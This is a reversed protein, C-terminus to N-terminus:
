QKASRQMFGDLEPENFLGVIALLISREYNGNFIRPGYVLLGGVHIHARSVVGAGQFESNVLYAKVLRVLQDANMLPNYGICDEASQNNIILRGTKDVHLNEIKSIEAIRLCLQLDTLMIGEDNLNHDRSAYDGLASQIM